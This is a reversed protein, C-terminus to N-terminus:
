DVAQPDQKLSLGGDIVLTAGTIYDSADSALWAAASAIDAVEGIRGYPVIAELKERADPTAWATENIPTRIAGPAIANVRIRKPAFELAASRMLMMVGGKSAAYNAHGAWAMRQHISSICIIKGAAKSVAEVVGRRQFERVAERMCLFQGTLNTNLVLNWNAFSMDELPVDVQLGANNVLIHLTGFYGIASKFMAVVDDEKGVDGKLVIVRRGLTEIRNALDSAAEDNEIHNIAINAGAGALRLAVARGIGSNAGTILAQQGELFGTHHSLAPGFEGVLDSM